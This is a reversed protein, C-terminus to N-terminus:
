LYEVKNQIDVKPLWKLKKKGFYYKELVGYTNCTYGLSLIKSEVVKFM